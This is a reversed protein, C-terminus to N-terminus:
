GKRELIVRIMNGPRAFILARSDAGVKFCSYDEDNIVIRNCAKFWDKYKAECLLEIAGTEQLGYQRWVLKEPSITYLWANLVHPNLNTYTYNKTYTDYDDGMSKVAFYIYVKTGNEKILQKIENPTKM